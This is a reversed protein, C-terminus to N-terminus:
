REKCYSCRERLIIVQSRKIEHANCSDNQTRTIDYDKMESHLCQNPAVQQKVTHIRVRLAAAAVVGDATLQARHHPAHHGERQQQCAIVAVERRQCGFESAKKSRDSIM